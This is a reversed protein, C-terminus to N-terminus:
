LVNKGKKIQINKLNKLEKELNELLEKFNILFSKENFSYLKKYDTFKTVKIKDNSVPLSFFNLNLEENNEEFSFIEINKFKDKNKKYYEKPIFSNFLEKIIIKNM